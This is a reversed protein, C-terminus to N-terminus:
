NGKLAEEEAKALEDERFEYCEYELLRLNPEQRRYLPMGIKWPRTFVEPDEITAEYTMVDPSVRTYREVVRLAASHFNGARDFWTEDNSNTVEVVLTNGEWHGRSYGMYFDIVDAGPAPTNDMFVFRTLNLYEYVIVVLDPFQVIQFPFPLYTIRPIGPFLCRALPDATASNQQNDKRQALAEPNYPITNGEVVSLGAPIGKSAPHSELNEAASNLVQWVGQLDPQKNANLPGSATQGFAVGGTGVMGISVAVIGMRLSRVSRSTM